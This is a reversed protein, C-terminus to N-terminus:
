GIQLAKRWGRLSEVTACYYCEGGMMSAQLEFRPGTPVHLFTPVHLKKAITSLKCYLVKVLQIYWNGRDMFRDM